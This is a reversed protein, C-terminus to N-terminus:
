SVGIRSFFKIHFSFEFYCFIRKLIITVILTALQGIPGEEGTGQAGINNPVRHPIYIGNEKKETEETEHDGSRTLLCSDAESAMLFETSEIHFTESKIVLCKKEEGEETLEAQIIPVDTAESVILVDSSETHIPVQM